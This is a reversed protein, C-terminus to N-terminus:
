WLKSQKFSNVSKIREFKVKLQNHDITTDNIKINKIDIGLDILEKKDMNFMSEIDNRRWYNTTNYYKYPKRLIYLWCTGDYEISKQNIIYYLDQKEKKVKSEGNDDKYEIDIVDGEKEFKLGYYYCKSGYQGGVYPKYGNKILTKEYKVIDELTERYDIDEFIENDIAEELKEKLENNAITTDAQGLYSYADPRDYFNFRLKDVDNPKSYLWQNISMANEIDISDLIDSLYIKYKSNNIYEGIKNQTWERIDEDLIDSAASEINEIFDYFYSEDRKHNDYNFKPDFSSITNVFTDFDGENSNKEEIFDDIMKIIETHTIYKKLIEFYKSFLKLNDNDIYRNLYNTEESETMSTLYYTDYSELNMLGYYYEQDTNLIKEIYDDEDMEFEFEVYSNYSNTEISLPFICENIEKEFFIKIGKNDFNEEYRYTGSHYKSVYTLKDVFDMESIINYTEKHKEKMDKMDEVSSCISIIEKLYDHKKNSYILSKIKPLGKLDEESLLGLFMAQMKPIDNKYKMLIEKGGEKKSIFSIVSNTLGYLKIISDLDDVDLPKFISKDIGYQDIYNDFNVFQDNKLHATKVESNPKITVGVRSNINTSPVNLNWLFYQKNGSKLSNYNEWWNEGTSICWSKSGIACSAKYTFVEAVIIGDKNYVINIGDTDNVQKIIEESNDPSSLYNFVSIRFDEYSKYRAIKPLFNNILDKKIDNALGIYADKLEKDERAEKKFDGKLRQIFEKNFTVWEKLETLDDILEEPDKYSVVQKPLKKLVNKNRNIETFIRALSNLDQKRTYAFYTALGLYGLQNKGFISEIINRIQVFKHDDESVKYKKLLKRAQQLNENYLIYKM